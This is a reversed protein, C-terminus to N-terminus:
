KPPPPVPCCYCSGVNGADDVAYIIPDAPLIIHYAVAGANGKTSGIKKMKPEAGPAETFKIVIGSSFPGFLCSCAGSYSVYIEPDPDIDDTACIVYFGDDNIGGKNGPQTTSGAPPINEGHPNVSECCCVCPPTTDPDESASVSFSGLAFMTAIVLTIPIIGIKSKKEKKMNKKKELWKKGQLFPFYKNKVESTMM